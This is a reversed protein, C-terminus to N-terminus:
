AQVGGGDPAAGGGARGDAGPGPPPVDLGYPAPVARLGPVPSGVLWGVALTGGLGAVWLTPRLGVVTGLVGGVAAGVPTTGWVVFRVTANMRGLLEAPCVAQRLSVQNVNYVVGGASQMLFGAVLWEVASQRTALPLLLGGLGCTAISGAIVPGLGLARGLRGALVAGALAGLNAVAFILGIRGPSQALRRAMFVVIVATAMGSFLNSTATCASIVRIHPERWVYRLGEGIQTRLRVPRGEPRVPPPGAAPRMVLLCVASVAFSAADAAMAVAAGVAEVLAGGLGPGAVQALSESTALKGNGDILAERGVLEPLHSQYAVDFFVTLVGAALAVVYLQALTLVGLGSAVPVTGLVVARGVDGVVLVRRRRVRDVLAGAPLGILLFPVTESAALLGVQLTTAHLLGIAVLPLALLSVQSGLRSVSQGAWLLRFDRHRWSSVATGTGAPRADM